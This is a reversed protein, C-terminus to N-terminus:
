LGLVAEASKYALEQAEAVAQMTVHGSHINLGNRLHIDDKMAQAAGKSALALTFPLTANNLAFTSTRAVGGPMNAVCYHIV